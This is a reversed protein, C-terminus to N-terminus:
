FRLKDFTLRGLSTLYRWIISGYYLGIDNGDESFSSEEVDAAMRHYDRRAQWVAKFYSWRGTLLYVAGSLGDLLMRRSIIRDAQALGQRAARDAHGKYHTAAYSKALNNRLMLLNNRYNLELKWPSDNPLPVGGVHYVVSEPVVQIQWGALQM